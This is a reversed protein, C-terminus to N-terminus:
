SGSSSHYKFYNICYYPASCALHAIAFLQTCNNSFVTILRRPFYLAWPFSNCPLLLLMMLYRARIPKPAINEYMLLQFFQLDSAWAAFYPLCAFYQFVQSSVHINITWALWRATREELKNKIRGNWRWFIKHQRGLQQSCGYCNKFKSTLITQCQKM